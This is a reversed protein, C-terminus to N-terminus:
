CTISCFSAVPATEELVIRSPVIAVTSRASPATVVPLIRSPVIAGISRLVPVVTAPALLNSM